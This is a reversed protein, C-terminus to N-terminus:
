NAKYYDLEAKMDKKLDSGMPHQPWNKLAQSVMKIQSTRDKKSVDWYRSGPKIDSIDLLSDPYVRAAGIDGDQTIVVSYHGIRVFSTPRYQQNFAQRKSGFLITDLAKHSKVRITPHADEDGFIMEVPGSVEAAKIQIKM